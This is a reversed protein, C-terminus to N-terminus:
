AQALATQAHQQVIEQLRKTRMLEEEISAIDYSAAEIRCSLIAEELEWMEREGISDCQRQLQKTLHMQYTLSACEREAHQLRAVCDQITHTLHQMTEDIVAKDFIM